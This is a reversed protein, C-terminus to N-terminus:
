ATSSPRARRRVPRGGSAICRTTESMRMSRTPPMSTSRAKELLGRTRRDDEDGGEAVDGAGHLGDSVADVVVDGLGEVISSSRCVPPRSQKTSRCAGKRGLHSQSQGFSPRLAACTASISPLSRAHEHSLSTARPQPAWRGGVTQPPRLIPSPCPVRNARVMWLPRLALLANPAPSSCPATRIAAPIRTTRAVGARPAKSRALPRWRPGNTCIALSRSGIRSQRCPGLHWDM